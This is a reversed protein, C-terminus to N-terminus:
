PEPDGGPDRPGIRRAHSARGARDGPAPDGRAAGRPSDGPGRRGACRRGSEVDPRPPRDASRGALGRPLVLGQRVVPLAWAWLWTRLEHRREKMRSSPNSRSSFRPSSGSASGCSERGIAYRRAAKPASGYVRRPAAQDVVWNSTVLGEAELERLARYAMGVDVGNPALCVEDLRDILAAGHVEGGGIFVLLFPEIWRGRRGGPRVWGRHSGHHHHPHDFPDADM